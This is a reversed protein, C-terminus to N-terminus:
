PTACDPLSAGAAAERKRIERKLERLRAKCYRAIARKWNRIEGDLHNIEEV